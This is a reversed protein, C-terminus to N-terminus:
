ELGRVVYHWDFFLGRVTFYLVAACRDDFRLCGAVRLGGGSEFGGGIAFNGLRIRRELGHYDISQGIHLGQFDLHQIHAPEGVNRVEHHDRTTGGIPVHAGDRLAHDFPGLLRSEARVADLSLLVAVPHEDIQALHDHVDHQRAHALEVSELLQPIHRRRLAGRAGLTRDWRYSARDAQPNEHRALRASSDYHASHRPPAVGGPAFLRPAALSNDTPCSVLPLSIFHRNIAAPVRRGSQTFLPNRSYWFRNREGRVNSSCSIGTAVRRAPSFGWRATWLSPASM